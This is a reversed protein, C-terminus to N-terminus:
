FYCYRSKNKLSSQGTQPPHSASPRNCRTMKRAPHMTPVQDGQYRDDLSHLRAAQRDPQRSPKHYVAWNDTHSKVSLNPNDEDKANKWSNEIVIGKSKKSPITWIGLCDCQKSYTTYQVHAICISFDFTCPLTQGMLQGAVPILMIRLRTMLQRNVCESIM